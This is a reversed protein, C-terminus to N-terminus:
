RVCRELASGIEKINALWDTGFTNLYIIELDASDALAKAANTPFQTQVIIAAAKEEKIKKILNNIDKPSPEKGGTEV